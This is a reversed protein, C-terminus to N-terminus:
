QTSVWNALDFRTFFEANDCDRKLNDSGQTDFCNEQLKTGCNLYLCFLDRLVVRNIKIRHESYCFMTKYNIFKLFYNNNYFSVNKSFCHMQLFSDIM